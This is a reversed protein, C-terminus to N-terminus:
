FALPRHRCSAFLTCSNSKGHSLRRIASSFKAWLDSGNQPPRMSIGFPLLGDAIGGILQVPHAELETVSLSGGLVHGCAESHAPVKCKSHCSRSTVFGFPQGYTAQRASLFHVTRPTRLM